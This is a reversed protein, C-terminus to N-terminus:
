RQQLSLSEHAGPHLGALARITGGLAHPTPTRPRLKERWTVLVVQKLKGLTGPTRLEQM